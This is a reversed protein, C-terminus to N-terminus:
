AVIPGTASQNPFDSAAPHKRRSFAVCDIL